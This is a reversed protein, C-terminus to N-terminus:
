ISTSNLYNYVDSIVRYKVEDDTIPNYHMIINTFFVYEFVGLLIFMMLNEILIWNWKIKKRNILGIFLLVLLILGIAGAMECAKILLHYLIKKQSNLSNIYQQYLYNLLQNNSNQNFIVKIIQKQELTLPSNSEIEKVYDDIKDLFSEKEIKIVYNFYFYIEFIIMIFIHLFITIFKNIIEIKNIKYIGIRYSFKNMLGSFYEYYTKNNVLICKNNISYDQENKYIINTLEIQIKSKNNTIINNNCSFSIQNPCSKSKKFNNSKSIINTLKTSTFQYILPNICNTNKSKDINEIDNTDIGDGILYSQNEIDTPIEKVFNKKPPSNKIINISKIM